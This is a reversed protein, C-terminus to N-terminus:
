RSSGALRTGVDERMRVLIANLRKPETLYRRLDVELSVAGTFGCRVLDDLFDDLALVGHGPPLISITTEAGAPAVEVWRDGAGFPIDRRKEFGLKDVFFELSRDQDSVPIGANGLRTIRTATNQTM